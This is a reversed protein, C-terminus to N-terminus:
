TSQNDEEQSLPQTLTQGNVTAQPKYRGVGPGCDVSGPGLDVSGTGLDVSGPGLDVSDPGL